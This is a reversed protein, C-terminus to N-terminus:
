AVTKKGLGQKKALRSRKRAYSKPVLPYDDPLGWKQRYEDIEMNFHQKLYRRLLKVSKGDELCIIHDDTYSDEIPVAPVLPAPREGELEKIKNYVNEILSPLEEPAVENHELYRTVFELTQKM